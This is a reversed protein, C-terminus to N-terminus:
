LTCQKGTTANTITLGNPASGAIRLTPYSTESGPNYVLYEGANPQIVSPMMSAELIGCRAEAGDVDLDEYRDYTMYGFPEYAKFNLTIKGGGLPNLRHQLEHWWVQASSPLLPRVIYYVFPREDFVLKGEKNRSLWRYLAELKEVTTDEFYCPLKFTRVKVRTGYWYGGARGTVEEDITDYDPYDYWRDGADPIYHLGFETCSKGDFSFEGIM